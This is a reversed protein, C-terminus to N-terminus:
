IMAFRLTNTEKHRKSQREETRSIWDLYLPTWGICLTLFSLLLLHPFELHPLFLDVFSQLLMFVVGAFLLLMTLFSVQRQPRLLAIQLRCCALFLSILEFISLLSGIAEGLPINL